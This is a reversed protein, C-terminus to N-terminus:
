KSKLRAERKEKPMGFSSYLLSVGCSLMTIELGEKEQPLPRRLHSGAMPAGGGCFCVTFHDMLQQLTIDGQM